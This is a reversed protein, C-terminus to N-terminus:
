ELYYVIGYSPNVKKIITNYLYDHADAGSMRRNRYLEEAVDFITYTKMKSYVYSGDSLKAYARVKWTITWELPKQKVFKMTMAYSSGLDSDSKVYSLKAKSEIAEYNKIYPNSSNVVLDNESASDSISYILGSSVVEKGNIESDVSYITRMGEHLTNVQYGNIEIGGDITKVFASAPVLRFFDVNAAYYASGTTVFKLFITHEGSPIEETFQGTTEGYQAWSSANNELIITGVKHDLSDVSVEVNGSATGTPSSYNISMGGASESFNVHDYRMVVGNTIGGINQGNSANANTDIVGGQHDAFHEAEIVDYADFSRTTPEETTPEVTTPEQTTTEPENNVLTFSTIDMRFGDPANGLDFFFQALSESRFNLVIENNGSALKVNTSAQTKEDKLVINEAAKNTTVNLKCSYNKGATLPIEKTKMQVSWAVGKGGSAIFTSFSGYDNGDKYGGTPNNGWGSAFYVSWYNLETWNAGAATFGSPLTSVAETTTPAQTTPVEGKVVVEGTVGNTEQGNYVSTIKVIHKGAPVDTIRHEGCGVGNLKKQNDVYINYVQGLAQMRENSGWVVSITNNAPSNFVQGFVEEPGNAQPQTTPQTPQQTPQATSGGGAKQVAAGANILGYAYYYDRGSDGLDQATDKLITHVQNKNLNPNVSYMMAVVGAGIPSAMSTGNTFWVQDGPGCAAISTGPACFDCEWGFNSTGRKTKDENTAIISIVNSYDSPFGNLDAGNNGAGAVVTGGANTFRTIAQQEYDYSGEHFLSFNIVKTGIGNAYDVALAMKDVYLPIAVNVLDVISNDTGAAVGAVQAGNNSQAAILGACNIMHMNGTNFDTNLGTMAYYSGDERYVISQNKNSINKLDLNANIDVGTGDVVCVKVKSHSRGNIYNWADGVNLQSLYYENYRYPDNVMDWAEAIQEVKGNVESTNTQTYGDYAKAAKEATLGYSKVKVMYTDDPCKHIYECEGYQDAVVKRITDESMEAGFTLISVNPEYKLKSEDAREKAAERYNAVIGRAKDDLNEEFEKQEEENGEKYYSTLVKNVAAEYDNKQFERIESAAKAGDTRATKVINSLTEEGVEYVKLQTEGEVKIGPQEGGFNQLALGTLLAVSLFGGVIKIGRKKFM